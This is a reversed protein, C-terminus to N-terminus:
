IQRVEYIAENNVVLNYFKLNWVLKHFLIKWIISELFSM